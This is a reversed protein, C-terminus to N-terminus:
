RSKFVIAVPTPVGDRHSFVSTARTGLDGEQRSPGHVRYESFSPPESELRVAFRPESV